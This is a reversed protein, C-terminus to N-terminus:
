VSAVLSQVIAFDPNKAFAERLREERLRTRVQQLVQLCRHFAQQAEDTRGIAHLFRGFALESKWHQVPNGLAVALDRAARFHGEAADLEGAARAIEGALRRAKVLNKKSGTRTALTLCEAGHSRAATLDGQAVALEGMGSFMRISYRYRMWESTSPNKFYRFVSDYQDRARDMEGRASFIEALNLEANPQTGPDHRRRGIQASTANVAEAEALDGLDAYLWGLCNLLRHHIAEDGIREALSLGETFSAYAEDYDGKGTLTLGRMFSSFLLPVLLGRERAITLGQTQLRVAEGYDGSWNRLLGAISLSLSQNVRDGATRSITVAKDVAV